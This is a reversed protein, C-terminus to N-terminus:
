QAEEEKIVRDNKIRASDNSNHRTIEVHMGDWHCHNPNVSMDNERLIVLIKEAVEECSLSLNVAGRSLM